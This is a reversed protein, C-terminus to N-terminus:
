REALYRAEANHIDSASPLVHKDPVGTDRRPQQGEQRAQAQAMMRALDPDFNMTTTKPLTRIVRRQSSKPQEHKAFAQTAFLAL